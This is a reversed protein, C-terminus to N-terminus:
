AANVDRYTVRVVVRGASTITPSTGSLTVNLTADAALPTNNALTGASAISYSGVAEAQAETITCIRNTAETGSVGINLAPTTGGLVFAEMVQIQANGHIAAGAPLTLAPNGIYVGSSFDSGLLTFAVEKFSGVAGTEGFGSEEDAVRTGFHIRLGDPNSYITGM